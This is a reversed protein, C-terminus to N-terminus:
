EEGEEETLHFIGNIEVFGRSAKQESDRFFLRVSLLKVSLLCWTISGGGRERVEDRAISDGTFFYIVKSVM